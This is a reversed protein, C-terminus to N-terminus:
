ETEKERENYEAQEGPDAFLLPEPVDHAYTESYPWLLTGLVRFRGSIRIILYTNDKFYETGHGLKADLM